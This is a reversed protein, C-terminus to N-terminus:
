SVLIYLKINVGEVNFEFLSITLLVTAISTCHRFDIIQGSVNVGVCTTVYLQEVCTLSNASHLFLLLLILAVFFFRNVYSLSHFFWCPQIKTFGSLNLWLSMFFYKTISCDAKWANWLMFTSTGSSLADRWREKKNCFYNRNSGYYSFHPHFKFCSQLNWMLFIHKSM